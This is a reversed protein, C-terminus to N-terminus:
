ASSVARYQLPEPAMIRIADKWCTEPHLTPRSMWVEDFVRFDAM